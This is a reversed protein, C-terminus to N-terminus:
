LLHLKLSNTEKSCILTIRAGRMHNRLTRAPARAVMKAAAAGAV